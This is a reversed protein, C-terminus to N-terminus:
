PEKTLTELVVKEEDNIRFSIVHKVPDDSLRAM